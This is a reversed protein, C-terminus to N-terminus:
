GLDIREGIGMNLSIYLALKGMQHKTETTGSALVPRDIAGLMQCSMQGTLEIYPNVDVM